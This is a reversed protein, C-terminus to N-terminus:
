PHLTLSEHPSSEFQLFRRELEYQETARPSSHLLAACAPSPTTTIPAACAPKRHTFDDPHSWLSEGPIFSHELSTRAMTKLDLYGLGQEEVAKVYEHTIDIRSVGEDDTSLAVPVHAARYEALPHDKGKVGLIVDNSTLNIEVMIHRAAMEKLLDYPHDEYMVDVGHGIREAHALDIAERIHFKLGDPPVLGPALEGAHLTIRVKPYLRHLYALMQMQLHYDRMSLYGDEPMVFNIGVVRPDASAVEFGLLTQAFVQQPPFGRLIQYLYLVRVSCAPAPQPTACHEIASRSSQIEDFTARDTAIEDRLGAALLADRTRALDAETDGHWGIQYGLRAANSFPPTYMAEIYQENQQAARTAIEDVWEGVHSPHIALFRDFTSFFQDHGSTGSTPVFTRMSFADVLADYLKQDKLATSAPVTGAACPPPSLVMTAAHVCLNDEAADRILTESYVTGGSLHLHLDGGKPMDQLFARLELPNNRIAELTRATRQEPSTTPPSPHATNAPFAALGLGLLLRGIRLPHPPHTSIPNL